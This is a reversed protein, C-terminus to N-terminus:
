PDVSVVNTHMVWRWKGETLTTESWQALYRFRGVTGPGAPEYFFAGRNYDGTLEFANWSRPTNDPNRSLTFPESWDALGRVMRGRVMVKGWGNGPVGDPPTFETEKWYFLAPRTNFRAPLDFHDPEVVVLEVISGADSAARLMVSGGPMLSATNGAIRVVHTKVIQRPAPTREVHSYAVRLYTAGAYQGVLTLSVSGDMRLNAGKSTMERTLFFGDRPAIMFQGGSRLPANPDPPMDYWRIVADWNDSVGHELNFLFLRERTGTMMIPAARPLSSDILTWKRGYPAATVFLLANAAKDGLGTVTVYVRDGRPPVYMEPRDMGGQTSVRGYRGGAIAPDFPDILTRFEWTRGGDSSVFSSEAGTSQHKAGSTPGGTVVVQRLIMISGDPLRSIINDCSGLARPTNLTAGSEPVLPGLPTNTVAAVTSSTGAATTFAAYEGRWVATNCGMSFLVAGDKANAKGPPLVLATNEWVRTGGTALSVIRDLAGNIAPIPPHAEWGRYHIADGALVALALRPRGPSGWHLATLASTAQHATGEAVFDGRWGAADYRHLITTDKAAGRLWFHLQDGFASLTPPAATQRGLPTWGSAHSAVSWENSAVNWRRHWAQGDAGRAVIDIADGRAVAAPASRLGEPPAGGNVRWDTWRAGTWQRHWLRNDGGRIWVDLRGSQLDATIAPADPSGGGLREWPSWQTGNRYRHHIAGDKGRVVMSTIERGRYALAPASGAGAQPGPTASWVSWALGDFRRQWLSGDSGLAWVELQRDGTSVFAPASSFKVPAGDSLRTWDLDWGASASSDICAAILACLLFRRMFHLMVPGGISQSIM